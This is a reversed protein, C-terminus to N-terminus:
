ARSEVIANFYEPPMLCFNARYEQLYLKVEEQHEPKFMLLYTTPGNILGETYPFVEKLEQVLKRHDTQRATIQFAWNDMNDHLMCGLLRVITVFNIFNQALYLFAPDSPPSHILNLNTEVILKVFGDFEKQAEEQSIEANHKKNLKTRLLSQEFLSLKM